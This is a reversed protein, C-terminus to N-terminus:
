NTAKKKVLTKFVAILIALIIFAGPPAVFIGIPKFAEGFVQFGYITGAGFLERIISLVVIAFTYGFGM